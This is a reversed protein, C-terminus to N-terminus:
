TGSGGEAPQAAAGDRVQREAERVAKVDLPRITAIHCPVQISGTGLAMVKDFRAHVRNQTSTLSIAQAFQLDQCRGTLELLYAENPRTWVAVASDGLPTWGSLSGFFQFSPVPEGAHARHIALKQDDPIRGSACAALGLALLGAAAPALLASIRM